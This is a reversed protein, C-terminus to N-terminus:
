EVGKEYRGLSFAPLPNVPTESSILGAYYSVVAVADERIEKTLNILWPHDSPAKRGVHLPQADLLYNLCGEPLRVPYLSFQAGIRDTLVQDKTGEGKNCMDCGAHGKELGMFVRQPCHNLVMLAYRGYVPFVLPWDNNSLDAIESLTLERSATGETTGQERLFYVTEKNWVYLGPGGLVKKPWAPSLHSVNNAVVNIDWDIALANIMTLTEDSCQRPLTLADQTGLLPLGAKLNAESYDDPAWFFREAGCAKFDNSWDIDKSQVTIRPVPSFHPMAVNKKQYTNHVSLKEYGNVRQAVFAEFADRRLQNIASVPLFVPAHNLFAFSAVDVPFDATKRISKEANEQTQPANRAAQAVAGKVVVSTTGDTVGMAAPMDPEATLTVHMPTRPAAGRGITRRATSLLVEDDLRYVIDNVDVRKHLRLTVTTGPPADKGSFIMQQVTNGRVELGDQDNLPLNLRTEALYKDGLARCGTIKGIAVGEHSVHLPNIIRADENGFIYGRSFGGRNFVQLLADKNGQTARAGDSIDLAERYAKTVIAAYEARKLRGEIKLASIGAQQLAPVDELLNVDRPSLWAAKKGRYTYAIRCPQACRGRNGSRGGVMASLECQGSVSVCLAGHVFVEIEIGSDVAKKLTALNSERAFVVRDLGVTQVMVAGAVNHISMQTSAHVPLEPYHKKVFRLVGFDQVLVADAGSAAVKALTESFVAFESEKVLTNLTVYVKKGYYHAWFVAERLANDDFGASARAGFSASGLYVADAGNNIAAWLSDMNGAPSLLETKKSLPM